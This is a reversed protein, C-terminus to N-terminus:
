GGSRQIKWVHRIIQQELCAMCHYGRVVPGKQIQFAPCHGVGDKPHQNRKPHKIRISLVTFSRLTALGAYTRKNKRPAPKKSNSVLPTVFSDSKNPEVQTTLATTIPANTEM